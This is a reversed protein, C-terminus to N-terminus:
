LGSLQDQSCISFHYQLRAGAKSEEWGPIWCHRYLDRPAIKNVETRSIFGLTLGLQPAQLLRSLVQGMQSHDPIASVGWVLFNVPLMSM